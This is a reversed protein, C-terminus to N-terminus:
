VYLAYNVYVCSFRKLLGMGTRRVVILSTARAAPTDIPATEKASLSRGPTAGCVRSRIRAAARSSPQDGLWRPRARAADWASATPSTSARGGSVRPASGDGLLWIIEM